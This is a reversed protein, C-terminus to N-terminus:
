VEKMIDNFRGFVKALSFTEDARIVPSLASEIQNHLSLIDKENLGLNIKYEGAYQERKLKAHFLRVFDKNHFDFNSEAIKWLDYYDRIAYDLRTISAKLKEAVAENRSLSLIGNSPLLQEGTFPDEYFHKVKNIVPKDVPYQRLSIELKIYEEKDTIVSPYGIQFVYQTSENFAKGDHDPSKLNMSKLFEPMRAKIPKMIRSRKTRTDLDDGTIYSFDLDESLRVHDFYIKNLLTGGKFVIDSSLGSNLNNMIITIYYDKEVLRPSFKYKKAIAPIIEKLQAKNM